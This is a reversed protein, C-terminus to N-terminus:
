GGKKSPQVRVALVDCPEHKVLSSSTNGLWRLLGSHGHSGIIVLDVERERAVREISPGIPGLEIVCDQEDIGFRERCLAMQKEALELLERELTLDDPLIVDASYSTPMMDVVHQLQALAHLLTVRASFRERLALARQIVIESEPEFDLALLLHSYGSEAM